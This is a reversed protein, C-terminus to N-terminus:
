KMSSLSLTKEHSDRSFRNTSILETKQDAAKGEREKQEEHRAMEEKRKKLTMREAGEDYGDLYIAAPVVSTLSMAPRKNAPPLSGDCPCCEARMKEM